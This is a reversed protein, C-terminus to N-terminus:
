PLEEGSVPRQRPSRLSWFFALIALPLVIKSGIAGPPPSAVVLPKLHGVGIRLLQELVEYSLMLPVLFRYRLIVIWSLVALMLQIAGWQSFIAILNAGGAVQIDLGAISNAGGDPAFMHILSRVTDALTMLVLFYFASKPGEYDRDVRPLFSNWNM